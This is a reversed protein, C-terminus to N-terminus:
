KIVRNFNHEYLLNSSLLIPECNDPQMQRTWKTTVDYIPEYLICAIYELYEYENNNM